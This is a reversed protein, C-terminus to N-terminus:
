YVKSLNAIYWKNNQKVVTIMEPAIWSLPPTCVGGEDM